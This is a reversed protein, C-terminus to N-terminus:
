KLMVMKKVSSFSGAELRYFYVGSAVHRGNRDLGNWDVNWNGAERSDNLLTAVQKGLMDSVDLRVNARQPLSFTIRTTPNFPNPYNQGLVFSGPINADTKEVSTTIAAISAQLLAMAYAPNHVGNSRDEILLNYNWIGQVLDPRNLIKTSDTAASIVAGTADHPLKAILKALLNNYETSFTEIKGNGDYDKSAMKQDFSSTVESHCENCIGVFDKVGASDMSFGHNPQGNRDQM